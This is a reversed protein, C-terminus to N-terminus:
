VGVTAFEVCFIIRSNSCIYQEEINVLWKISSKWSIIPGFDKQLQLQIEISASEPGTLCTSQHQPPM